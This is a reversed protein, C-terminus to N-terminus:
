RTSISQTEATLDAIWSLNQPKTIDPKSNVLYRCLLFLKKRQLSDAMDMTSSGLVYVISRIGWEKGLISNHITDEESAKIQLPKPAEPNLAVGNNTFSVEGKGYINAILYWRLVHAAAEESADNPFKQDSLRIIGHFYEHLLTSVNGVAWKDVDDEKDPLQVYYEQAIGTFSISFKTENIGMESPLAFISLKYDPLPNSIVRAMVYKSKQFNNTLAHLEADGVSKNVQKENSCEISYIRLKWNEFDRTKPEHRRPNKCPEGTHYTYSRSLNGIWFPILASNLLHMTMGKKESEKM